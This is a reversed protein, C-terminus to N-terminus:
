TAVEVFIDSLSQGREGRLDDANGELAIEGDHLFVVDDIYEEVEGVLHTSVLIAQDEGYRFEGFVAELIKRRSPPDIGGFPEDMLVLRSPWCFGCVVKLRAKQGKSLAGVREDAALNMFRLLEAAKAADWGSFFQALFDLQEGVKMWGYFPDVEPLYSTLRRTEIGVPEGMIRVVGGSPRAVGALIKFLTSKGSGNEGLIGTVKGSEVALSIGRLAWAGAYKKTLQEIAIM